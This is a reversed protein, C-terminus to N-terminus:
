NHGLTFKTSLKMLVYHRILLFHLNSIFFLFVLLFNVTVKFFIIIILLLISFRRIIFWSLLCCKNWSCFSLFTITLELHVLISVDRIM